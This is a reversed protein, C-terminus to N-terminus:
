VRDVKVPVFGPLGTLQYYFRIYDGSHVVVNQPLPSKPKVDVYFTMDPRPHTIGSDYQDVTEGEFVEIHAYIALIRSAIDAIGTPIQVTNGEIVHVGDALRIEQLTPLTSQSI